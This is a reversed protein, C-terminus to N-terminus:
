IWSGPRKMFKWETKENLGCLICFDDVDLGALADNLQKYHMIDKQM